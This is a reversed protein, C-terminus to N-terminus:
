HLSNIYLGVEDTLVDPRPKRRNIPVVNDAFDAEKYYYITWDNNAFELASLNEVWDGSNLYTVSGKSTTIVRKQPHHIHGCIVFDYKKEIALDAATQEFDGIWAVAKKVSNKIRKSFSVRSRGTKKLLWNIFRNCLILCDYGHGGLKAIIRASGRTTHDFVDGHFIWNMKGNIEIVLKDCLQFQGSHLDTYRRLMEDHNGTIYIVRTGESLLRVIENIVQLHAAPFYRKSFQWGDIIDGNLVLLQPQVSRLYNVLEAAHCGYTGLHVDSLVVVEPTRKKV